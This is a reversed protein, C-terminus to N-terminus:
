RSRQIFTAGWVSIKRAQAEMIEFDDFSIEFSIRREPIVKLIDQGFAGYDSVGAKLLLNPNTRFGRIWSNQYM